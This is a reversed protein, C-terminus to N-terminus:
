KRDDSIDFGNALRIKDWHSLNEHDDISSSNLDDINEFNNKHTNDKWSQEKYVEPNFNVTNFKKSKDEDAKTEIPQKLRPDVKISRPDKLKFSPDKSSKLYYFYFAPVTQWDMYKWANLQKDNLDGKSLVNNFTQKQVFSSVFMMTGLGIFFSLFPKQIFSLKTPTQKKIFKYYVTPTLLGIMGGSYGYINNKVLISQLEDKLKIRDQELLDKDANYFDISAQFQKPSLKTQLYSKEESTSTQNPAPDTM